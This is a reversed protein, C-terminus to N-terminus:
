LLICNMIIKVYMIMEAMTVAFMNLMSAYVYIVM